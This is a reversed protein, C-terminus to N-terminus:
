CSAAAGHRPRELVASKKNGKRFPRGSTDDASHVKINFPQSPTSDREIRPSSSWGTSPGVESVADRTSFSSREVLRSEREVM